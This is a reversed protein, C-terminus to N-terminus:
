RKYVACLLSRLLTSDVHPRQWVLHRFRRRPKVPQDRNPHTWRMQNELPDIAVPRLQESDAFDARALLERRAKTWEGSETLDLNM